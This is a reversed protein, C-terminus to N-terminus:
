PRWDALSEPFACDVCDSADALCFDRYVQLLGQQLVFRKRTFRSADPRRGFLRLAARELAASPQSAPLVALQDWLHPEAALRVPLVTNGLFDHIRDRGILAIEGECVAAALTFHSSWFPHELNGLFELVAAPRLPAGEVLRLFAPFRRVVAALAALRRHPHNAPRVAALSWKPRRAPDSEGRVKWWAAWLGRLYARTEPSTSEDYPNGELFGAHGFLLAEMEESRSRLLRLPLRQALMRMADRNAHYGLTTALALFWAEDRGHIAAVREFRAAQAAARHRAAQELLVEVHDASMSALPLSCRGLRAAALRPTHTDAAAAADLVVQAVKRHGLTRTFFRTDPQRFFLHLATGEYAPNTAHGHRDWDRVDFDLEIAGKRPAGDIEVVAELFDPGPGRNWWGFQIVRVNEGDTGSFDRGFDGRFWRSQWEVEPVLAPDAAFLDPERAATAFVRDRFAAYPDATM